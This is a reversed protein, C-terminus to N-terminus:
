QEMLRRYHRAREDDQFRSYINHLYSAYEHTPHHAYLRLFYSLSKRFDENLVEFAELLQSYQRRTRNQDYAAMEKTYRNEARHFYKRALRDMALFHDPDLTLLREALGDAVDEFGLTVNVQYYKEIFHIDHSAEEAIQPWLAYAQRWNMSEVLTEFYRIRFEDARGGEPFLALYNELHTIERSLNDIARYSVALAAYTSDNAADTHIARELHDLARGTVGLAFASLGAHNFYAGPVEEQNNRKKEILEEYAQLASTYDGMRFSELAFADEPPLESAPRILACGVFFLLFFFLSVTQIQRM